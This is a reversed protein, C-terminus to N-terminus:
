NTTGSIALHLIRVVSRRLKGMETISFPLFSQRKEVPLNLYSFNNERRRSNVNVFRISQNNSDFNTSM